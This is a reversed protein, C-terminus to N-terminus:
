KQEGYKISIFILFVLVSCQIQEHLIISLLIPIFCFSFFVCISIRQTEKFASNKKNMQKIKSYFKILFLIMLDLCFLTTSRFTKTKREPTDSNQINPKLHLFRIICLFCNMQNPVIKYKCAVFFFSFSHNLYLPFFKICVCMKVCLFRNIM